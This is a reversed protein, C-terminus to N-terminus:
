QIPDSHLDRIVAVLGPVGYGARVPTVVVDSQTFPGNALLATLTRTNFHRHTDPGAFKWSKMAAEDTVYIVIRGGPKLVRRLEALVCEGDHWFYAVNVALIRDVSAPPLPIRDFSAVHLVIQGRRVSHQNRSRAQEIMVESQDLGHVTGASASRSLMRLGEGPGCGLELIADGPEPALAAIAHQYPRANIVRMVHGMVRGYTGSPRKFQQGIEQWLASAM